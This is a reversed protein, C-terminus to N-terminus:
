FMSFTSFLPSLHYSFRSLLCGTSSIYKAESMEQWCSSPFYVVHSKIPPIHHSWLCQKYLWLQFPNSFLLPLSDSYELFSILYWLHWHLLAWCFTVLPLLSMQHQIQTWQSWWALWKKWTESMNFIDQRNGFLNNESTSSHETGKYILHCSRSLNLSSIVVLKNPKSISVSEVVHSKFKM